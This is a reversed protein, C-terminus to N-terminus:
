SEILCSRTLAAAQGLRKGSADTINWVIADDIRFRTGDAAVRVGAYDAVIEESELRALMAARDERQERDASQHSPLGIFERASMRFLELAARNAYFFLPPTETGHAVVPRDTEWLADPCDALRKGTLRAFSDLLAGLREGGSAQM